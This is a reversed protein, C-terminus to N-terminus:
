DLGYFLRICPAEDPILPLDLAKVPALWVFDKHENASLVVAPRDAVPLHFIHYVFDFDPYRVYLSKFFRLAAPDPRHGTEEWAERVLATAKDEGPDMKGAPLCWTNGQPKHDQRHLLLIEGNHEIFCSAVEFKPKFNEPKEHYIM